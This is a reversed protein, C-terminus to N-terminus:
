NLEFIEVYFGNPTELLCAKGAGMIYDTIPQIDSKIEIGNANAREVVEKINSTLFSWMGLGQNPICSQVGTDIM